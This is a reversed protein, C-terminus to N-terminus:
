DMLQGGNVDLTIGTLYEAADSVLFLVCGAVDEPLALRNLPIGELVKLIEESTFTERTTETDIIGPAITNVNINYPALERALSKSLAIVGAKSASYHSGVLLGGTKAAVSSINVIKGKKQKKMYGAVARCCLYTGKLNVSIVEDWENEQLSEIDGKRFIGANNVLIDIKEYHNLAMDMLKDVESGKSIDAKVFLAEGGLSTIKEAVGRTNGLDIDNVILKAGAKALTIAIAKGAGREAGTVIAVKNKLDIWSNM